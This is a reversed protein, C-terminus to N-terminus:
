HVVVNRMTVTFVTFGNFLNWQMCNQRCNGRERVTRDDCSPSVVPTEVRLLFYMDDERGKARGTVRRVNKVVTPAATVASPAAPTAPLRLPQELLEPPPPLSVTEVFFTESLVSTMPSSGVPVLVLEVNRSEAFAATTVPGLASEAVRARAQLRAALAPTGTKRMSAVLSSSERLSMSDSSSRNPTSSM